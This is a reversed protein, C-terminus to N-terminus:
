GPIADYLDRIIDQAGPNQKWSIADGFAAWLLLFGFVILLIGGAAM